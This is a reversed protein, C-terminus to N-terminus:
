IWPICNGGWEFCFSLEGHWETCANTGPESTSYYCNGGSCAFCVRANLVTTFLPSMLLMFIVMSIFLTKKKM